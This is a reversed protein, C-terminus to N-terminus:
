LRVNNPGDQKRKKQKYLVKGYENRDSVVKLIRNPSVTRSLIIQWDSFTKELFGTNNSSETFLDPNNEVEAKAIELYM